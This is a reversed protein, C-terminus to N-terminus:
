TSRTPLTPSRGSLRRPATATTDLSGTASGRPSTSTSTPTNSPGIEGSTNERQGHGVDKFRMRAKHFLRMQYAPYGSAHKIWREMFIMQNAVYFGAQSPNAKLLADVEAILEPTFREDADLHFVWDHKAPINDIAWNRQEGFSHFPHTYFKVGRQAAIQATQDTSGSDLVAVDDCWSCSELCAELNIEENHTLIVVSVPPRPGTYASTIPSFPKAMYTDSDDLLIFGARLNDYM